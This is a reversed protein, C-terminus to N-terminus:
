GARPDLISKYNVPPYMQEWHKRAAELGLSYEYHEASERPYPNAPTDTELEYANLGACFGAHFVEPIKIKM